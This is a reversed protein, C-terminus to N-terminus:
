DKPELFAIKRGISFGIKISQLLEPGLIFDAGSSDLLSELHEPLIGIPLFTDHLPTKTLKGIPNGAEDREHTVGDPFGIQMTKLPVDFVEIGKPTPYFDETNIINGMVVDWVKRKTYCVKAGTDIVAKYEEGNHRIRLVPTASPNCRLWAMNKMWESPIKNHVTFVGEDIRAMWSLSSLANSGIMADVEMGVHKCIHVLMVGLYKQVAHWKKDAFEVFPDLERNVCDGAGTDILFKRRGVEVVMHGNVMELPYNWTELENKEEPLEVADGDCKPCEKTQSILTGEVELTKADFIYECRTCVMKVGM